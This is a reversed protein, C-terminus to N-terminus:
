HNLVMELTSVVDMKMGMTNVQTTVTGKINEFMGDAYNFNSIIDCSMDPAVGKSMDMMAKEESTVPITTTTEMNNLDWSMDMEEMEDLEDMNGWDDSEEMETDMGMNFMSSGDDRTGQANGDFLDQNKDTSITHQMSAMGNTMSIVSVQMNYIGAQAKVQDNVMVDGEPLALLELFSYPLIDITQTEESVTVNVAKTTNLTQVSYGSKLKGTRPDFEAYADVKMNGAQGGVQASNEDANGYALVNSEAGMILYLKKPFTFIGKRDVTCASEIAAKPLDNLSAMIQGGSNVIKFNILYLVGTALGNGNVQDIRLVYDTTTTYVDNMTMGFVSTKIDDKVIASFHYSSGAKWQYNLETAISLFTILSFISLLLTTKM